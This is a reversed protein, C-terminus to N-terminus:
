QSVVLWLGLFVYDSKRLHDLFNKPQWTHTTSGDIPDYFMGDSGQALWHMNDNSKRQVLIMHTESEGPPAYPGANSDAHEEGVAKICRREAGPYIKLLQAMAPKQAHIDVRMGLQLGVEAMAAPSNGLDKGEQILEPPPSNNLIGTVQYVVNSRDHVNTVGKLNGTRSVSEPGSDDYHLTKDNINNGFAGVAGVLAYAGCLSSGKPQKIDAAVPKHDPPFLHELTKLNINPM